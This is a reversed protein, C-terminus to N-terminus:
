RLTEEVRRASPAGIRQYIALAQQLRAAGEKTTGEQLYTRGLGELASAEELPLGIDRAIALARTYHERAQQIGATRATLDGLSTLTQAEGPRHGFDRFLRLAQQLSAAAAPYDGTPQRV